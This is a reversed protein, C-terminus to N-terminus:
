PLKKLHGDPGMSEDKEIDPTGVTQHLARLSFGGGFFHLCVLWFAALNVIHHLLYAYTVGYIAAYGALACFLVSTVLKLSTFITLSCIVASAFSFQFM